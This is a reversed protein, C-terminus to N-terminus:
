AGDCVMIWLSYSPGLNPYEWRIAVERAQPGFFRGDIPGMPGTATFTTSGPTFQSPPLTYPVGWYENLTGTLSGTALNFVLTGSDDDGLDYHCTRTGPSKRRARAPCNFVSLKHVPLVSLKRRGLSTLEVELHGGDALGHPGENALKETRMQARRRLRLASNAARGRDTAAAGAGCGAARIRRWDPTTVLSPSFDAGASNPGTGTEVCGLHQPEGWGFAANRRVIYMDGRGPGANCTEPGPRESVFM